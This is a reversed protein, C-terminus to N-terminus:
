FFKLRAVLGSRRETPTLIAHTLIKDASYLTLKRRARTIATYVLERTVVPSFHDPLVLATHEFESGQSKHVTMAYATSHAPLRNPQVSKINGDSFPFYVRLNGSRDHLAIGLDGNFLGLSSDNCEIMVPRGAYWPHFSHQSFNFLGSHRLSKEIHINLGQVGFQGTRLACLLQYRNFANLVEEPDRGMKILQLYPQYAVVSDKLLKQYDKANELRHLQIDPYKEDVQNLISLATSHDGLNVAQALQGIGSKKDFRYNKNLLCLQDCVHAVCPNPFQELPRGKLHYGTLRNLAEAREESYGLSLFRGMDGLVAGAEVSALQDRDGLLIVQASTPLAAILRALMPLDIMSAEDVVLADLHLPNNKHYRPQYGHSRLGLLRHLTLAQEPLRRREEGSLSLQSYAQSLSQTLRVTAKGTPAALEIRLSRKGALRVLATLLKAVTTTKGTGPGGSIIAVKSTIAVAAAVKQFNIESANSTFLQDLIQRLRCEDTKPQYIIKDLAGQSIFQIVAGENKWMRQLYLREQQLVLPAPSVGDGVLPSSEFAKLWQEKDPSGAAKWLAQALEPQRGDFFYRPTLRTIPLCVHGAGADASLLACALQLLPSEDAAIIQSFQVDLFRLLKQELAQNLLAMMNM